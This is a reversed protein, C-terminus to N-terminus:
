NGGRGGRGGGALSSLEAETWPTKRSGTLGRIERVDAPAVPSAAHGWERRLYTLVSAIQEDSLTARFPPMLGMSGEKGALLIRAAVTPNGIVYRSRALAPVSKEKGQGDAPHCGACTSSFIQRGAAFRKEEETTLPPIEVVPAPKGPWTIRAAIRKATEALEGSGGTLGTLSAPEHEFPVAAASGSGFASRGVAPPRGGGGGGGPQLGIEVGRLLALRQWTGRNADAALEFLKRTAIQNRSRSIAGALMAIADESQKPAAKTQLLRDIMDAEQGALGSVAADV